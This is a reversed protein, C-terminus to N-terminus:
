SYTILQPDFHGAMSNLMFALSHCWGLSTMIVIMTLPLSVLCLRRSTMQRIELLDFGVEKDVLRSDHDLTTDQILLRLQSLTRYQEM